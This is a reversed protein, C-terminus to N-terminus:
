SNNTDSKKDNKRWLPHSNMYVERLHEKTLHTYIQTTSIDVHGLLEQVSRLDAGRELLHTAFSHRLMHPHIKKKLKSKKAYRNLINNIEQRVIKKGKKTVFLLDSNINNKDREEIYEILLDKAFSGFPVIREKSGKGFCKLYGNKLDIENIKLNIIESVRLGSSYLLEILARDRKGKFGKEPIINVLKEIEEVSIVDPLVKDKKPLTLDITPDNEILEERILFKYFSRLASIKRRLSAPKLKKKSLFVLYNFIDKKDIEIPDKDIKTLFEKFDDLDNKYSSITNKSYEKELEIYSLFNDFFNLNKM